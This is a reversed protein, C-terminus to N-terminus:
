GVMITKGNQENLRHSISIVTRNQSARRLANLVNQQTNADLNATIEDLLMIAPDAVVARAISLLQLQGCSFMCEDGVTDYGAKLALITEHLGVLKAANEIQERTITEDFLAIQDAVTGSVMQFSQEVYGFLKRKQTDPIQCADEGFIKVSGSLPRYLGLLLRFITSKGAGTRGVLTVNEGPQIVCSFEDLIINDVDYGFKVKDFCIDFSKEHLVKTCTISTDTKWNDPENLFEDIRKVGAVASQINQIEMGISEIPEFVKGVYAIIAVATGVSMGFFTQIGGGMSSLIMMVSIVCSSIFIIIPSYVSDYLNSKEVAQYSEQIYDDYKQEMYKQKYFSHIMRINRITEPVHNNVKGIAIRNEIQAELMRKQFLRTMLFILPTVFLMLIGLGTSKLFIVLLISIVTCADAFMGIIGNDFLSEITDVDNVFRSTITGVANKSFYSASLSSIKACMVHRLGRTVKQGFVTILVEKVADFINSVAIIAFYLLALQLTVQQGSTFRNIVHELILPPILAFCISGTITIVLGTTLMIEERIIKKLVAVLGRAPNQSMNKSTNQKDRKRNM